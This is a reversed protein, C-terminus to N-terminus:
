KNEKKHVTVIYKENGNPGDWHEQAQGAEYGYWTYTSSGPNPAFQWGFQEIDKFREMIAAKTGAQVAIEEASRFVYGADKLSYVLRYPDQETGNGAVASVNLADVDEPPCAVGEVCHIHIAGEIHTIPYQNLMLMAYNHETGGVVKLRLDPEMKLLGIGNIGPM